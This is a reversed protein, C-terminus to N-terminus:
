TNEEVAAVTNQEAVPIWTGVCRAAAFSACSTLEILTTIM